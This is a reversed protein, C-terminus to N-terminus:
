LSVYTHHFSSGADFVKTKGCHSTAVEGGEYESPLCIVLTAFMGPEKETDKHAKFHAGDEYLLLKHLHAEVSVDPDCGLKNSVIDLLERLTSTWTPNVLDFRNPNLEWTKRVSEDFVTESGKGFPAQHCVDIMQKAQHEILPFAIRGIGDISLGTSVDGPVKGSTAFSGITELSSLTEELARRINHITQAMKLN